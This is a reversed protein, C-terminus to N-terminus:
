SGPPTTGVTTVPQGAASLLSLGLRNPPFEQNPADPLLPVTRDWWDGLQRMRNAHAWMEGGGGLMRVLPPLHKQELAWAVAVALNDAEPLLAEISVLSGASSMGPSYRRVLDDCWDLHRNRTLDTEGADDLRTAGFQRVLEHLRYRVSEGAEEANVLSRDVLTILHDEVDLADLDNGACVASAAGLAAGRAFVSLRRLVAAEDAALADFSWALCAELTRHRSEGVRTTGSLVRLSGALRAAIDAPTLARLRAAALEIALPLGETLRCITGVATASAESIM